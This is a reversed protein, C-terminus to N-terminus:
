PDYIEEGWGEDEENVDWDQEDKTNNLFDNEADLIEQEQEELSPVYKNDQVILRITTNGDNLKEETTDFAVYGRGFAKEAIWTAAQLRVRSDLSSTKSLRYVTELAEISYEQLKKKFQERQQREWQTLPKRGASM